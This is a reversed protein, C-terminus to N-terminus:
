PLPGAADASAFLRELIIRHVDEELREIRGEITNNVRVRNDATRVLVGGSCACPLPHLVVRIGPVCAATFAAWRPALRAHDAANLEAVLEQGGISAAAEALLACLIRDYREGDAEAMDMFRPALQDRVSQVLSWRLADLEAKFKLESAQVQRRYHREALQQATARERQERLQLRDASDKLIADRSRAARASLEAVLLAARQRIAEELQQVNGSM